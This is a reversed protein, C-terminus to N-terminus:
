KVIIMMGPKSKVTLVLGGDLISLAGRWDNSLKQNMTFKALDGETLGAGSILTYAGKAFNDDATVKVNVTGDAPLTASTAVALTPANAAETFNFALTTGNAAALAELTRPVATITTEGM